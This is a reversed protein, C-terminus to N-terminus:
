AHFISPNTFPVARRVNQPPSQLSVFGVLAADVSPSSPHGVRWRLTACARFGHYRGVKLM